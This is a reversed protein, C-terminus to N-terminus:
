IYYNLRIAGIVIGIIILVFFGGATKLMHKEELESEKM